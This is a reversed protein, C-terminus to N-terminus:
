ASLTMIALENANIYDRCEKRKALQESYESRIASVTKADGESQAEAIKLVIYDTKSLYAKYDSIKKKASIVALENETYPVYIYIEEYEDWAEKAPVAQVPYIAKVSRGGNKFKQDVYYWFGRQENFFVEAGQAHMEQALEESTKGVVAPVADHHAVFLKDSVLRGLSLDPNTIEQTKAENYIKM